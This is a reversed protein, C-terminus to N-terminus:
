LYGYRIADLINSKMRPEYSLNDSPSKIMAIVSTNQQLENMDPLNEKKTTLLPLALSALVIGFKGFQKLQRLLATFPFQTLTDGGLKDLLEKLSRHYINLLEDYHKARLNSDTSLFLFYALDLAPSGYRTIQYDLLVIKEPTAGQFM